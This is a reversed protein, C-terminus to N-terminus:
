KLLSYKINNCKYGLIAYHYIRGIESKVVIPTLLSLNGGWGHMIWAIVKLKLRNLAQRRCTLKM